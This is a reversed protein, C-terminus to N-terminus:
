VNCMVRSSFNPIPSIRVEALGLLILEERSRCGLPKATLLARKTEGATHPRILHLANRLVLLRCFMMCLVARHMFRSLLGGHQGVGALQLQHRNLPSATLYFFLGGPMISQAEPLPFAEHLRSRLSATVYSLQSDLNPTSAFVSEM